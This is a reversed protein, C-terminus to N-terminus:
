GRVLVEFGGERPKFRGFGGEHKAGPIQGIDAEDVSAYVYMFKDMDVAITFLEPTQFSAAVTQGVDYQRAVVM